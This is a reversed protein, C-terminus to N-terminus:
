RNHFADRASVDAGFVRFTNRGSAKAKYLAADAAIQIEIDICSAAFAAGVSAGVPLVHGKREITYSLARVVSSCLALVMLPDAGAALLVAFEDGGIRAVMEAGMCTEALRRGVERLCEDGAAHGLTDNVAKFGDLDVLLLAGVPRGGDAVADIREQFRTRNALGTLVDFEALYRTRDSMVKEETIDQKMGFIRTPVGNDAEVTATIRIWRRIGTVTMIEADLTFGGIEAIAKDRHRKLDHLSRESYCALAMERTIPSGRPLGFFDYVMDSWRLTENPLDCEWVGIRATECCREFTDRRREQERLLGDLREQQERVTQHLLATASTNRKSGARDVVSPKQLANLRRYPM